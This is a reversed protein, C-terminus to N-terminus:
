DEVKVLSILHERMMESLGEWTPCHHGDLTRVVDEYKKRAIKERDTLRQNFM